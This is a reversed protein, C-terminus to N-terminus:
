LMSEIDESLKKLLKQYNSLRVAMVKEMDTANESLDVVMILEDADLTSLNM